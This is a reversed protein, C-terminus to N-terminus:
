MAYRVGGLVAMNPNSTDGLLPVILGVYVAFAGSGVTVDPVLGFFYDPNDGWAGARATMGATIFGDMMSYFARAFVGGGPMPDGLDLDFFAGVTVWDMLRYGVRVGVGPPDALQMRFIPMIELTASSSGGGGEPLSPLGASDDGGFVGGLLDGAGDLGLGGLADGIGGEEKAHKRKSGWRIGNGSTSTKEEEEEDEDDDERASGWTLTAGPKAKKTPKPAITATTADDDTDEDDTESEDETTEDTAVPPPPPLPPPAAKRGGRRGGTQASAPASWGLAVLALTAAILLRLSM